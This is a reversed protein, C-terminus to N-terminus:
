STWGMVAIVSRLAPRDTFADLSSPRGGLSWAAHAEAIAEYPHSAGYGSMGARGFLELENYAPGAIGVTDRLAATVERGKADPDAGGLHAVHGSEHAIVYSWRDGGAEDVLWPFGETDKYHEDKRMARDWNATAAARDGVLIVTPNLPDVAATGVEANGGFQLSTGAPSHEGVAAAIAAADADDHSWGSGDHFVAMVPGAGTGYEVTTKGGEASVVRADGDKVGGGGGGDGWRGDEGRPQDESYFRGLGLVTAAFEGESGADLMEPDLAAAEDDGVSGGDGTLEIWCRCNRVPISAAAYWGASTELNHVYGAWREHRVVLVQDLRVQPAQGSSLDGGFTAEGVVPHELDQVLLADHARDAALKDVTRAPAGPGAGALRLLRDAAVEVPLSWLDQGVLAPDRPHREDAPEGLAPDGDAPPRLLLGAAHCSQVLSPTPRQGRGGVLSAARAGGTPGLDFAAGDALVEGLTVDPSPLALDRIRDAATPASRLLLPRDARVVDVDGDPRDGHFNVAAGDVVRTVAKTQLAALVEGITPPRHQEDADVVPHHDLGLGYRVVEDGPQVAGIAVWGRGTLIPHNPTASLQAGGATEISVLPGRYFRRYGGVVSGAEVLTDAPFCNAVEEVPLRADHPGAAPYVGSVLFDEGVDVSVGEMEVHSDRVREDGVTVWTKTSSTGAKRASEGAALTGRNHTTAVAVGALLAARGLSFWSEDSDRLMGVLGGVTSGADVGARVQGEVFPGLGAGWSEATDGDLDDWAGAITPDDDAYDAGLERGARGVTDDYLVATTKAVYRNYGRRWWLPDYVAAPDITAAATGLPLLWGEPDNDEPDEPPPTAPTAAAVLTTAAAAVREVVRHQVYGLAKDFGATFSAEAQRRRRDSLRM